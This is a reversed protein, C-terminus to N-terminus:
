EDETRDTLLELAAAVTDTSVIEPAVFKDDESDVPFKPPVPKTDGPDGKDVVPTVPETIVLEPPAFTAEEDELV